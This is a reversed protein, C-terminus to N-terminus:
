EKGGVIYFPTSFQRYCQAACSLLAGVEQKSDTEMMLKALEIAQDVLPLREPLFAKPIKGTENAYRILVETLNNVADNCGDSEKM